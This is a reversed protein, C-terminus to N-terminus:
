WCFPFDIVSIPQANPYALPKFLGITMRSHKYHLKHAMREVTEWKWFASSSLCSCLCLSLPPLLSAFLRPGWFILSSVCKQCTGCACNSLLKWSVIMRKKGGSWWGTLQVMTTKEDSLVRCFKVKALSACRWLSSRKYVVTCFTIYRKEGGVLLKHGRPESLIYLELKLFLAEFMCNIIIRYKKEKRKQFWEWTFSKLANNTM